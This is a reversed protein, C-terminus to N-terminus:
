KIINYTTFKKHHLFTTKTVLSGNNKVDISVVVYNQEDIKGIYKCVYKNLGECDNVMQANQM